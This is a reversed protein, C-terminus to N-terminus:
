QSQYQVHLRMEAPKGCIASSPWNLRRSLPSGESVEDIFNAFREMPLGVGIIIAPSTKVHLSACFTCHHFATQATIIPCKLPRVLSNANLPRYTYIVLFLDNRDAIGLPRWEWPGGNGPAAM